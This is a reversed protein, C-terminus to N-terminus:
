VDRYPREDIFLIKRTNTSVSVWSCDRQIRTEILKLLSKALGFLPKFKECLLFIFTPRKREVNM